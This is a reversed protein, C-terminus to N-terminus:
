VTPHPSSQSVSDVWFRSGSRSECISETRAQFNEQNWLITKERNPGYKLEVKITGQASDSVVDYSNIFGENKLIEAISKKMKSAPIDVTKHGATNTNRIRTLMDAIPDTMAM